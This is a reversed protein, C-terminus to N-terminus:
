IGELGEGGVRGLASGLCCGGRAVGFRRRGKRFGFRWGGLGIGLNRCGKAGSPGRVTVLAEGYMPWTFDVGVRYFTCGV